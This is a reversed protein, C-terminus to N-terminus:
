WLIDGGTFDASAYSTSGAGSVPSPNHGEYSRPGEVRLPSASHRRYSKTGAGRLPSASHGRYSRSSAGRFPLSSRGRGTESVPSHGVYSISADSFPSDLMNGAECVTSDFANNSVGWPPTETVVSDDFTQNQLIDLWQSLDIGTPLRNGNPIINGDLPGVQESNSGDLINNDMTSASLIESGICTVQQGTAQIGGLEGYPMVHQDSRMFTLGPAAALCSAQLANESSTGSSPGNYSSAIQQHHVQADIQKQPTPSPQMSCPGKLYSSDNTKSFPEHEHPVNNEQISTSYIQAVQNCKRAHNIIKDWDHDSIKGFIERLGEPNKSHLRLLDAVQKIGHRELLKHRDGKMAIGSLKYVPDRSSPNPNKKTSLGRRDRVAFSESIGEQIKESMSDDAAMVGLRFRKSPVFSSNDQFKVGYINAMGGELRPYLDESLLPPKGPRSSIMKEHFYERKWHEKHDNNFEGHLVVVKVQISSLPGETIIRNDCDYIAVKLPHDDDAMIDQRSYQTDCCKNEFKMRYKRHEGEDSCTRPNSYQQVHDGSNEIKSLQNNLQEWILRFNKHCEQMRRGQETILEHLQLQSSQYFQQMEKQLTKREEVFGKSMCEMEKKLIENQSEYFDKKERCCSCSCCGRPRKAQPSGRRDEGGAGGHDEEWDRRPRSHSM